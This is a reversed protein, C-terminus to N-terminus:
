EGDNENEAVDDGSPGDSNTDEHDGEGDDGGDEHAVTFGAHSVNGPAAEVKAISLGLMLIIAFVALFRTTRQMEISRRSGQDVLRGRDGFDARQARSAYM